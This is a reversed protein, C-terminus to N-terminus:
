EPHRALVETLKVDGPMPKRLRRQPENDKASSDCYEIFM